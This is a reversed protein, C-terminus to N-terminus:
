SFGFRFGKEPVMKLSVSSSVKRRRGFESFSFRFDKEPVVNVSVM